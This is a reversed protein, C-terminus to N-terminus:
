VKHLITFIDSKYTRIDLKPSKGAYKITGYNIVKNDGMFMTLQGTM